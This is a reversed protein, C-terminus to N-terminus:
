WGGASSPLSRCWALAQHQQRSCWRVRNLQRHQRCLRLCRTLRRLNVASLLLLIARAELVSRQTRECYSQYMDRSVKQTAELEADLGDKAGRAVVARDGIMQQEQHWRSMPVPMLSGHPRSVVGLVCISRSRIGASGPQHRAAQQQVTPRHHLLHMKHAILSPATLAAVTVLQIHLHKQKSRGIHLLSGKGMSSKREGNLSTVAQCRNCSEFRCSV